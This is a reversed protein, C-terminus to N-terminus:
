QEEAFDDAHDNWIVETKVIREPKNPTQIIKNVQFSKGVYWIMKNQISSDGAEKWQDIFISTVKDGATMDPEIAVDM